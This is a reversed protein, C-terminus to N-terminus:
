GICFNHSLDDEISEYWLVYWLKPCLEFVFLFRVPFGEM